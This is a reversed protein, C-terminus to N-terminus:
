CYQKRKCVQFRRKNKIARERWCNVVLWEVTAGAACETTLENTAQGPGAGQRTMRIVESTFELLVVAEVCREM